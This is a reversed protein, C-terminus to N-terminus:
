VRDVFSFSALFLFIFFHREGIELERYCRLEEVSEETEVEVGTLAATEFM